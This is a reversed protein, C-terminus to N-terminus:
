FMAEMSSFKEKIERDTGRVVSRIYVNVYSCTYYYKPLFVSFLMGLPLFILVKNSSSCEKFCSVFLLQKGNKNM